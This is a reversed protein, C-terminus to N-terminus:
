GRWRLSEESRWPWRSYRSGRQSLAWGVGHGGWGTISARCRSSAWWCCVAGFGIIQRQERVPEKAEFRRRVIQPDLKLFFLFAAVAFGVYAALFAWGQWWRVTGAPLFLIAIVLTTMAVFRVAVQTGLHPTQSDTLPMASRNSANHFRRFNVEPSPRTTSAPQM